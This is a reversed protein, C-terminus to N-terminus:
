CRQNDKLNDFIQENSKNQLSITVKNQVILKIIEPIM